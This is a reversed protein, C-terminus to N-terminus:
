KVRCARRLVRLIQAPDCGCIGMRFREYVLHVLANNTGRGEVLSVFQTGALNNDPQHSMGAPMIVPDRLHIRALVDNHCKM